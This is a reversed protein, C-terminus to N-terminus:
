KGVGSDGVLGMTRTSPYQFRSLDIAQQYLRQMTSDPENHLSSSALVSVLNAMLHKASSFSQQFVPEHFREQPPLEDVVNHPSEDVHSGSRRRSRSRPRGTAGPSTRNPNPSEPHLHPTSPPPTSQSPEPGFAMNKMGDAIGSVTSSRTTPIENPSNIQSRLSYTSERGTTPRSSENSSASPTHAGSPNVPSVSRHPQSEARTYAQAPM